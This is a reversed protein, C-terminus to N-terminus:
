PEAGAVRGQLRLGDPSVAGVDETLIHSVSGANALDFFCLLGPAGPAVPELTTADLARVRLWPPPVHRRPTSAGQRLVPEYMQSLLETMGYENVIREAPVGLADELGRYLDERAVVRSRGKFGGTEMIRAGQPLAVKRGREALGDLLHVFAFATGAVLAARGSATVEGAAALFGDVDPGADPHALWWVPDGWREAAMGMMASLSSEPAAEPSPILSLIPLAGDEPVLHAGLNPLLSARYLSPRPVLHRGRAETGRTTGSTRFVHAADTAAGVVLDVHKFATAPVPPVDEWRTVTEPTAGRATCFARYTANGAFQVAFARLALDAFAADSLPADVGRGFLVELEDALSAFGDSAEM